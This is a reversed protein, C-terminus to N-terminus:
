SGAPMVIARPHPSRRIILSVPTDRLKVLRDPEVTASWPM